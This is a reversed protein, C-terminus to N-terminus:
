PRTYPISPTLVLPDSSPIQIPLRCVWGDWNDSYALGGGRAYCEQQRHRDSGVTYLSYGVIVIVGVLIGIVDYWLQKRVETM